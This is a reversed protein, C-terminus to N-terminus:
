SILPLSLTYRIASGEGPLRELCGKALLDGLDRTATAKSCHTLKMYKQASMGGEFGLPGEKLMRKLAKEQRDNVQLAHRKWFETKQIVFHITDRSAKQADYILTVFFHIWETIDVCYGSHLNLMRYYANRKSLILSSLGFLIPFGLEQSLAKESIARGIRGNGDIFPHISEFYLHAIAARVPGQLSLGSVANSDTEVETNQHPASTNFWQLFQHMEVDLRDFPPAEFYVTEHGIPGAIIQMPEVNSRWCGVNSTTYPADDSKVDNLVMKHWNYLCDATLPDAFTKRVDIMLRAIGTARKDSVAQNEIPLGLNLRISSRIDEPNLHEGEIESTKLAEMVMVDILTDTLSDDSIQKIISSLSSTEKIYRYLLPQIETLDFTFHPWNPHQWNYRM